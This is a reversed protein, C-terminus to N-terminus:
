VVLLANKLRTEPAQIRNISKKKLLLQLRSESKPRVKTIQFDRFVVLLNRVDGEAIFTIAVMVCISFM